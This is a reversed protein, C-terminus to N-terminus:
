LEEYWCASQVIKFGSINDRANMPEICQGADVTAFDRFEELQIPHGLM